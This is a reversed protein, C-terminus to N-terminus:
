VIEALQDPVVVFGKEAKLAELRVKKAAQTEFYIEPEPVNAEKKYAEVQM